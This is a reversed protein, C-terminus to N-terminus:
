QKGMKIWKPEVQVQKGLESVIQRRMQEGEAEDLGNGDLEYGVDGTAHYTDTAEDYDDFNVTFRLRHKVVWHDMLTYTIVRCGSGCSQEAVTGHEFFKLTFLGFVRHCGQLMQVMEDTDYPGINFLAQQEEDDSSVLLGMTGGAPVLAFKDFQFAEGDWAKQCAEKEFRLGDNVSINKLTFQEGDWGFTQEVRVTYTAPFNESITFEKGQWETSAFADMSEHTKTFTDLPSKAPELKGDTETLAQEAAGEQGDTAQGKKQGCGVLALLCCITLITKKM